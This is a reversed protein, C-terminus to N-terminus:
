KAKRFLNALSGATGMHLQTAIWSLTMTTAARLRRALKLNDREGKRRPALEQATWFSDGM